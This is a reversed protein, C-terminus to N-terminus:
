AFMWGDGDCRRCNEPVLATMVQGTRTDWLGRERREEGDGSCAPCVTRVPERTVGDPESMLELM